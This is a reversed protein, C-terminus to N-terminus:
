PEEDLIRRTHSVGLALQAAMGLIFVLGVYTLRQLAIVGVSVERGLGFHTLFFFMSADQLGLGMPVMSAAGLLFAIADAAILNPVPVHYNWFSVLVALTLGSLCMNLLYFGGLPLLRSPHYLGLTTRAHTVFDSLRDPTRVGIARLLLLVLLAGTAICASVMMVAPIFSRFYFAAGVLAVVSTFGLSFLFDIFLVTTANSLPVKEFRKLLWAMVPYGMKGPVTYHALASSFFYLAMPRVRVRIGAISLLWVNKLIFNLFIAFHLIVLLAIQGASLRRLYALSENLDIGFVLAAVALLALAVLPGYRRIM